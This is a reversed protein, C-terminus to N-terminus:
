PTKTANKSTAFEALSFAAIAVAAYISGVLYKKMTFARLVSGQGCLGCLVLSKISVISAVDPVRLSKRHARHERDCFYTAYNPTFQLNDLYIEADSAHGYLGPSGHMNPAKDVMELTWAEPEAQGRKWLKGRVIATNGEPVVMLKMTYWENPKIEADVMQHTRFDHSPWSDIRVKQSEGRITM